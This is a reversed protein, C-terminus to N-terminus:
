HVGQTATDSGDTDAPLHLHHAMGLLAVARVFNGSAALWELRNGSTELQRQVQYLLQIVAADVRTVEGADVAIDGDDQVRTSFEQYLEGSVAITIDGSLQVPSRAAVETETHAM